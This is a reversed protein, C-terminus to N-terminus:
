AFPNALDPMKNQTRFIHQHIYTDDYNYVKLNHAMKNKTDILQFITSMWKGDEKYAHLLVYVSCLFTCWKWYNPVLFWAWFCCIVAEYLVMTALLLVQIIRKMKCRTIIKKDEWRVSAVLMSLHNYHIFIVQYWTDSKMIYKDKIFPTLRPFTVLCWNGNECTNM